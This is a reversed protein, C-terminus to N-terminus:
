IAAQAVNGNLNNKGSKKEDSNPARIVAPRDTGLVNQGLGCREKCMVAARKNFKQKLKVVM